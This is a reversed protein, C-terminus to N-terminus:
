TSLACKDKVVKIDRELLLFFSSSSVWSSEVFRRTFIRRESSKRLFVALSWLSSIPGIRSQKSMKEWKVKINMRTQLLSSAFVFVCLFPKLKWERMMIMMRANLSGSRVEDVKTICLRLRRTDLTYAHLCCRSEWRLLSCLACLVRFFFVVSLFSWNISNKKRSVCVDYYIHLQASSPALSRALSLYLHILWSMLRGKASNQQWSHHM